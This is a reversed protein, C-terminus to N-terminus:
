NDKSPYKLSIRANQSRLRGGTGALLHRRQTSLAKARPSPAGRLPGEVSLDEDLDPWYIGFSAGAITWNDRERPTAHLFLPYWALPVSISRGDALNVTLKDETFHVDKVREGSNVM